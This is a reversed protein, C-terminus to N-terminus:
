ARKVVRGVIVQPGVLWGSGLGLTIWRRGRATRVIFELLVPGLGEGEDAHSQGDSGVRVFVQEKQRLLHESSLRAARTRVWGVVCSIEEPM